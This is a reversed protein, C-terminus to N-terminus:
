AGGGGRGGERPSELLRSRLSVHDMASRHTAKKPLFSCEREQVGPAMDVLEGSGQRQQQSRTPGESRSDPLEKRPSLRPEGRQADGSCPATWAETMNSSFFPKKRRQSNSMQNPANGAEYRGRQQQRQRQRCQQGRTRRGATYVNIRHCHHQYAM